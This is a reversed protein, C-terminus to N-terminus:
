KIYYLISQKISHKLNGNLKVQNKVKIGAYFLSSAVTKCPSDNASIKAGVICHIQLSYYFSVFSKYLSNQLSHTCVNSNNKDDYNVDDDDDDVGNYLM